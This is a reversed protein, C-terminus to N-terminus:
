LYLRIRADGDGTAPFKRRGTVVATSPAFGRNHPRYQQLDCFFFTSRSNTPPAANNGLVPATHSKM